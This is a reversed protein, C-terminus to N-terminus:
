QPKRPRGPSSKVWHAQTTDPNADAYAKKCWRGTDSRRYAKRHLVGRIMKRHSAM